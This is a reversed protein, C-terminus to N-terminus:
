TPVVACLSKTLRRLHDSCSWSAQCYQSIGEVSAIPIADDRLVVCLVANLIIYATCTKLREVETTSCAACCCLLLAALVADIHM